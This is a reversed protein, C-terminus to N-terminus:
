CEFRRTGGAAFVTVPQSKVFGGPRLSVPRVKVLFSVVEGLTVPEARVSASTRTTMRMAM